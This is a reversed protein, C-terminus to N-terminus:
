LEQARDSQSTGPRRAARLYQPRRPSFYDRVIFGVIQGVLQWLVASSYAFFAFHFFARRSECDEKKEGEGCLLFIAAGPIVLLSTAIGRSIYTLRRSHWTATQSHVLLVNGVGSLCSVLVGTVVKKLM